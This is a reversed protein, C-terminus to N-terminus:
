VKYFYVTFEANKDLFSKVIKIEKHDHEQLKHSISNPNYSEYRDDQYPALLMNFIIGKNARKLMNEIIWFAHEEKLGLNFVGNAIVWDYKTEDLDEITGHIANIEEDVLDIAKENPDFGLYKGNWGKNTLYTHLHGVGCGVDLISDDDGIGAEYIKQFREQSNETGDMWGVCEPSNKSFRDVYKSYIEDVLLNTMVKTDTAIEETIFTRFQKM